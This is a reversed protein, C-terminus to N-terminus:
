RGMKTTTTNSFVGDSLAIINGMETTRDKNRINWSGRPIMEM